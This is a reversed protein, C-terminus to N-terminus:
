KTICQVSKSRPGSFPAGSSWCGNDVGVYIAAISKRSVVSVAVCLNMSAYFRFADVDTGSIVDDVVEPRSCIANMGGTDGCAKADPSGLSHLEISIKRIIAGWVTLCILYILM